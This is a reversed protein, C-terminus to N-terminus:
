VIEQKKEFTKRFKCFCYVIAFSLFINSNGSVKM